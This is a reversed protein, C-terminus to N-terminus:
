VVPPRGARTMRWVTRWRLPRREGAPTRLGDAYGRLLERAHRRSRLSAASRLFWVAVHPAALALPLNRRALWVRNRAKFYRTEASTGAAPVPHLAVVDGAYWVKYGADWLRWALEIGEHFRFFEAAWGGLREFLDRRVVVVGESMGAADSSRSRDGVLLRPVWRRPPAKGDPDALRPQVAGVNPDAAFLAAIRELAHVDPFTADDDLFLLLDGRVHPVGANRGGPVGLNEPLTVQRVDEPVDGPAAGNGVVVVNLEVGRQRVLSDLAHQLTDPRDGRTLVVCGFSPTV